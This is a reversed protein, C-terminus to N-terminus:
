LSRIEDEKARLVERLTKQEKQAFKTDKAAQKASNEALLLSTKAEHVQDELDQCKQEWDALVREIELKVAREKDKVQERIKEFQKVTKKNARELQRKEREHDRQAESLGNQHEQKASALQLRMNQMEDKSHGQLAQLETQAETAAQRALQVEQLLANNQIDLGQCMETKSQIIGQLKAIHENLLKQQEESSLLQQSSMKLKLDNDHTVEILKHQLTEIEVSLDKYTTQLQEQLASM